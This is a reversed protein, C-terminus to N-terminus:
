CGLSPKPSASLACARWNPWCHSGILYRQACPTTAVLARRNASTAALYTKPVPKQDPVGKTCRIERALRKRESCSSPTDMRCMGAHGDDGFLLSPRYQGNAMVACHHLSFYVTVKLQLWCPNHKSAPFCMEIQGQFLRHEEKLYDEQRTHRQWFAMLAKQQM